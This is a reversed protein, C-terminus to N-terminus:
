YEIIEIDDSRMWDEIKAALMEVTQGRLEHNSDNYFEIMGDTVRCHCNIPKGDKDDWVMSSPNITPKDYNGNFHWGTDMMHLGGCGPCLFMIGIKGSTSNKWGLVKSVASDRHGM